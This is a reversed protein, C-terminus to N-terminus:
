GAWLISNNGYCGAPKLTSLLLAPFIFLLCLLAAHPATAITHGLYAGLGM